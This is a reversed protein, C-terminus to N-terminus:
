VLFNLSLGEFHKAADHTNIKKAPNTKNQTIRGQHRNYAKPALNFGTVEKHNSKQFVNLEVKPEKLEVYM